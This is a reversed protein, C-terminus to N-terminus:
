PRTTSLLRQARSERAQPSPPYTALLSTIAQNVEPPHIEDLRYNPPVHGYEILHDPGRLIRAHAVGLPLWEVMPQWSPALVVLPLGAACGVHLTGTDVTVLLDCLTLLAALQPVTTRGALSIGTSAALSRIRDIAPADAATGLFLTRQGLSEAHRIVAAFRDDHWATQQAGSGQVVFATVPRGDPAAELLLTHAAALDQATFYVAPETVSANGALRLNNAILSRTWDYALHHDYLAPANGFGRAPALRLLAALLAFSGAKSSADTLVLDPHLGLTRLQSRLQRAVRFKARLSPLPDHTEILHDINPDHRLTAHGLGRTAVIILPQPQSNKLAAYLPTGHVCCGLPMQYQLILITRPPNQTRPRALRFLHYLLRLLVTKM